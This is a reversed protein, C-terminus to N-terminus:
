GQSVTVKCIHSKTRDKPPFLDECPAAIAQKLKPRAIRDGTNPLKESVYPCLFTRMPQLIIMASPASSYEKADDKKTKAKPCNTMPIPDPLYSVDVRSARAEM